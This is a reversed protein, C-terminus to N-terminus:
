LDNEGPLHPEQLGPVNYNYSLLCLSGCISMAASSASSSHYFVYFWLLINFWMSGSSCASLHICELM